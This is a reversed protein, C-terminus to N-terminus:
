DQSLEGFDPNEERIRNISEYEQEKAFYEEVRSAKFNDLLQLIVNDGFREKIIHLYIHAQEPNYKNMLPYGNPGYGVKNAVIGEMSAPKHIVFVYDSAFFISSSGFIDARGPFHLKNNMVRDPKEIERNLQSVMIILIKMGRSAFVKKLRIMTKCLKDVLTKEDEGQKGKCLLAHDITVVLGKNEKRLDRANAFEVVTEFIESPAGSEDVYFIPYKNMSMATEQIDTIQNDSLPENGASYLEKTSLGLKGSVSRAVQDSSLM